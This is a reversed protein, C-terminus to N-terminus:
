PKGGSPPYLFRMGDLFSRLFLSNHTEDPYQKTGLNINPYGTLTQILEEIKAAHFGPEPQYSIFINAAYDEPLQAVIHRIAEGDSYWISPDYIQFARFRHRLPLIYSGFYGGYSHGVLINGGGTAYHRDVDTM